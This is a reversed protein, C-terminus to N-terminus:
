RLKRISCAGRDTSPLLKILYPKKPWTWTTNGRGRVSCAMPAGVESGNDWISLTATLYDTKSVINRADKTDLYLVPLGTHLYEDAHEEGIVFSPFEDEDKGCSLLVQSLLIVAIFSQRM